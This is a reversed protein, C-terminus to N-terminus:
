KSYLHSTGGLYFVDPSNERDLGMDWPIGPDWSATLDDEAGEEHREEGPGQLDNAFAVPQKM